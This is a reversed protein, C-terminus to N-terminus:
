EPSRPETTDASLTEVATAAGETEVAPVDDDLSADVREVAQLTEDDALRMLTVGQTNRGVQSIEAARTRV